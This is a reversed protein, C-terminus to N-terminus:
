KNIKKNYILTPIIVDWCVKNFFPSFWLSHSLPTSFHSPWSCKERDTRWWASVLLLTVLAKVTSTQKCCPSSSHPLHALKGAQTRVQVDWLYTVKIKPSIPHLLHGTIRKKVRLAISGYYQKIESTKISLQNIKPHDAKISVLLQLKPCPCHVISFRVGNLLEDGNHLVCVCVCEELKTQWWGRWAQHFKGMQFTNTGNDCRTLRTWSYCGICLNDVFCLLSNWVLCYCVTNNM